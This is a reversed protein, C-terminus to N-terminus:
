VFKGASDLVITGDGSWGIRGREFTQYIMGGQVIENSTPWGLPGAQWDNLRYRNGIAGTVYHGAEGYKRLLVAHAFAQVDGGGPIVEHDGTPYGLPGGEWGLEAFTEFLHKPIAHAGTDPHWYIHGAEFEAFRGVGDATALEPGLRKGLWTASAAREDIANAPPHVGGPGADIKRQVDDRMIRMDIAGPDWKGQAAGAWEKHGILRSSNLGLYWLIAAVLTTYAEYQEVSWSARHPKGPTGGGDNAAEVGITVANANGNGIGPWSGQGAHWAIGVGCIVVRGDRGLYVQSALGL